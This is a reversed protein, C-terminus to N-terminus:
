RSTERQVREDTFVLLTAAAFSISGESRLVITVRPPEGPLVAAIGPTVEFSIISPQSVPQKRTEAAFGPLDMSADVDPDLGFYIEFRAQKQQTVIVADHLYLWASSVRGRAWATDHAKVVLDLRTGSGRHASSVAQADVEFDTRYVSESQEGALSRQFYREVSGRMEPRGLLVMLKCLAAEPTLDSGGLVGAKLLGVGTEYQGLLVAGSFCQTVDVIIKGAKVAREIPKLFSEATPANGTGYALLVVAKLDPLTLFEALDIGPFVLLAKVNADLRRRPAFDGVTNQSRLLATNITDELRGLAPFNPSVFANLAAAGAKRARNGRLLQTEFVICVEAVCPIRTVRWAAVRIANVLNRIGDTHPHDLIPIQSGTIIVPKALGTLLFSLAAATYVMTDTGHLIVFGQYSQYHKAVIDVFVTWYRAEINSSDLPKDLAVADIRIGEKRLLDIEKVGDQFVHWDAIKLPSKPDNRDSPVAGITGGTYILLISRSEPAPEPAQPHFTYTIERDTTM